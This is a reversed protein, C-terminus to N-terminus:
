KAMSRKFRFTFWVENGTGNAIAAATGATLTTILCTLANSAHGLNSFGNFQACSDAATGMSLHVSAGTAAYFNEEFTVTYAGDAAYTVSVIGNPKNATLGDAARFLVPDAAGNTRFSGSIVAEGKNASVTDPSYSRQIGM